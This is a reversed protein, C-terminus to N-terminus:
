FVNFYLSCLNFAAKIKNQKYEQSAIGSIEVAVMFSMSVTQPFM